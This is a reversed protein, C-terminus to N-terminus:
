FKKIQSGRKLYLSVSSEVMKIAANVLFSVNKKWFIYFTLHLCNLFIYSVLGQGQMDSGQEKLPEQKTPKTTNFIM